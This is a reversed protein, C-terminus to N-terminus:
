YANQRTEISTIFIIKEKDDIEYFLRYNGIRYRWTPPIFNKLKKINLGCHPNEKIQPYIYSEIKKYIKKQRSNGIEEIDRLFQETEFIKYKSM